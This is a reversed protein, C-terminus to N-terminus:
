TSRAARLRHRARRLPRRAPARRADALEAATSESSRPAPAARRARRRRPRLVVEGDASLWVDTELGPRGSSSRGGSPRSRTRPSRPAPAGTPSRSRRGHAACRAVRGDVARRASAAPAELPGSLPQRLTHCGALRRAPPASSLGPVPSRHRRDPGVARAAPVHLQRGVIEGDAHAGVVLPARVAELARVARPRDGLVRAPADDVQEHRAAHAHLHPPQRGLEGLRADARRQM